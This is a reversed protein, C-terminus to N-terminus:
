LTHALCSEEYGWKGNNSGEDLFEKVKRYEVKPPIDVSILTPVNSIESECGLKRLQNRTDEVDDVDDFLIRVTSHGSEEVLETVFLEGDREEVNIIDGVSYEPAYFLINDLKYYEGAKVAWASELEYSGSADNYYEFIVKVYDKM